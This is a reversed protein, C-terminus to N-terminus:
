SLVKAEQLGIAPIVDCILGRYSIVMGLQIYQSCAHYLSLSHMSFTLVEKTISTNLYNERETIWFSTYKVSRTKCPSKKDGKLVRTNRTMKVEFNTGFHRHLTMDPRKPDVNDFNTKNSYMFMLTLNIMMWIHSRIQSFPGIPLKECWSIHHSIHYM